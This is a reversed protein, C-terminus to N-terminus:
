RTQAEAIIANKYLIDGAVRAPSIKYLFSYIQYQIIFILLYVKVINILKNNNYIIIFWIALVLDRETQTLQTEM